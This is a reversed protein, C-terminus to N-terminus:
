FFNNLNEVTRKNEHECKLCKFEIEVVTKPMTKFFNAFDELVKQDLGMVFDIREDKSIGKFELIEEDDYVKSISGACMEVMLGLQAEVSEEEAYKMLDEINKPYKMEIFFSGTNIVNNGEKITELNKVKAKSLDLKTDCKEGCDSCPLSIESSEGTAKQQIQLFIWEIDFLQLERPDIDEKICSDLTEYLTAMASEKKDSFALGLEMSEKMVMARFTIPKGTSPLETVYWAHNNTFRNLAENNSM